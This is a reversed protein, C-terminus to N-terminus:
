CGGRRRPRHRRSPDLPIVKRIEDTAEEFRDLASRLDARAEALHSDLAARVVRVFAALRDTHRSPDRWLGEELAGAVMSRRLGETLEIQVGGRSPRNVFRDPSHAPGPGAPPATAFGEAELGERLARLLERNGGGLHVAVDTGPVGDVSIGVESRAMLSRLRVDDFRHVPVRLRASGEARLGELVYLNHDGGAIATAVEGTLPEIHGGHIAAVTVPASRDVIAIRYDREREAYLALEALDRYPEEM